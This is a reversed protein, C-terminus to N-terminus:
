LPLPHCLRDKDNAVRRCFWCVYKPDRVLEKYEAITTGKEVLACLHREHNMHPTEYLPTDKM